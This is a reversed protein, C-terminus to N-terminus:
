IDGKMTDLAEDTVIEDLRQGILEMAPQNGEVFAIEEERHLQQIEQSLGEM